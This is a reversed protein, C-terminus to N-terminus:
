ESEDTGGLRRLWRHPDRSIAGHGIKSVRRWQKLRDADHLRKGADMGHAADIQGYACAFDQREDALVARPLARKNLDEAAGNLGIRTLQAHAALFDMKM